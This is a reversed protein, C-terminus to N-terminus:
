TLLWSHGIVTHPWVAVALRRRGWLLALCSGRPLLLLHALTRPARLLGHVGVPVGDVTVAVAASAPVEVVRVPVM